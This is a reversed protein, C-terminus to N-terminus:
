VVRHQRGRLEAESFLCTSCSGSVPQPVPESPRHEPSSQPKSHATLAGTGESCLLPWCLPSHVDQGLPGKAPGPQVLNEGRRHAFAPAAGSSAQSQTATAATVPAESGRSSAPNTRHTWLLLFLALDLSYRLHYLLAPKCFLLTHWFYRRPSFANQFTTYSCWHKLLQKNSTGM